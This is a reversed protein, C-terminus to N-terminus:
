RVAIGDPGSGVAIKGIVKWTQTDIIQIENSGQCSVYAHKGDAAVAIGGPNSGVVVSQVKKRTLTDYVSVQGGEPVLVHRGDPTFEMRIPNSGAPLTAAVTRRAVDIVSITADSRNGVWIEKEDPSLAFGESARGVPVNAVIRYTALDM